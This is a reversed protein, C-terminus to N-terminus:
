VEKRVAFNPQTKRPNKSLIVRSIMFYITFVFADAACGILPYLFIAVLYLIFGVATLGCVYNITFNYLTTFIWFVTGPCLHANCQM